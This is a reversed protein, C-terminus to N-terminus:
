TPPAGLHQRAVRAILAHLLGDRLVVRREERRTGIGIEQAVEEDGEAHLVLLEDPAQLLTRRELNRAAIGIALRTPAKAALWPGSITRSHSATGGSCFARM